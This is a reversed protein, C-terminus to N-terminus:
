GGSASSTVAAFLVGVKEALGLGGGPRLSAFATLLIGAEMAGQTPILCLFFVIVSM